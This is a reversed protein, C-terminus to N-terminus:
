VSERKILKAYLGKLEDRSLIKLYIVLLAYAGLGVPISIFITCGRLLVLLGAMIGNALIIKVYVMDMFVDRVIYRHILPNFLLITVISSGVGAMAAGSAGWHPILLLNLVIYMVTSLFSISVTKKEQHVANLSWMQLWNFALLILWWILIQLVPISPRFAAGFILTIIPRATVTTVVAIPLTIMLMYSNFQKFLNGADKPTHQHLLALTPFLATCIGDPIIFLKEILTYPASYIGVAADGSMKSLLVIGIKISIMSLISPIFFPFGRVLCQKWFAIDTKFRPKPFIKILYHVSIMTGLLSGFAYVLTLGVLRYGIFLVVVSLATLVLGSIMNAYAVYQMKEYGQFASGFTVTISQFILTTGTIYVILRTDAPYGLVNVMVVVSCFTVAGLFVRLMVLKWFFDVSNDRNEAIERTALSGLGMNIFPQFLAVFAFAFTFKGYDVQGLCRTIYGIVFLSIVNLILPQLILWISNKVVTGTHKM